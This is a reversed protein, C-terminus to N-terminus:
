LRIGFLDTDNQTCRLFGPETGFVTRDKSEFFCIRLWSGIASKHFSLEGYSKKTRTRYGEIVVCDYSIESNSAKWLNAALKFPIQLIQM